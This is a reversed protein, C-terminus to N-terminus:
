FKGKEDKRRAIKIDGDPAAICADRLPCSMCIKISNNKFPVAPITKNKWADYVERMWEFMYETFDVHNQNINVPIALLDHTNKNEYLIIGNKKKYIKMYILLQLIHYSSATNTKVHREFTDHNCTKIEVIYESDKWNIFSDVYGYIPPDENTTAVEKSVLIGADQLAQQIRTHRDTGSDMNTISKGTQYEFFTNGEFALYWYRPCVGHNWVLSSPAFTKKTQFKPVNNKRYGEYITELLGDFPDDIKTEPIDYTYFIETELETEYNKNLIKKLIKNAM